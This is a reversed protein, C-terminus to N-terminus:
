YRGVNDLRKRYKGMRSNRRLVMKCCFCRLDQTYIFKDCVNCRGYGKSYLGDNSYGHKINVCKGKCQPPM